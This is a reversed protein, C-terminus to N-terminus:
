EDSVNQFESGSLDTSPEGLCTNGRQQFSCPYKDEFFDDLEPHYVAQPDYDFPFERKVTAPKADKDRVVKATLGKFPDDNWDNLYRHITGGDRYSMQAVLEEIHGLCVDTLLELNNGHSEWKQWFYTDADISKGSKWDGNEDPQSWFWPKKMAAVKKLRLFTLGFHATRAPMGKDSCTIHGPGDRDGTAWSFMINGCGRKPQLCSLADVQPNYLWYSLMRAFQEDSFMSDYDLTVCDDYGEEIASKMCNQIGQEWFAGTYYRALIGYKALIGTMCGQMAIPGYRSSSLLAIVKRRKQIVPKEADKWDASKVGQLNLSVPLSACDQVDSKWESVNEIGCQSFYGRLIPATFIMGHHDNADIHGGTIWFPAHEHKGIQSVAYEIDPVAIKLVGNPKLVRVWEKLVMLTDRHSFHELVHSARIEDASNTEFVVGDQSLPYAEGGTARDINVYGDLPRSGAGVNIKM